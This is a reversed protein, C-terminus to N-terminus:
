KYLGTLYSMVIKKLHHLVESNLDLTMYGTLPLVLIELNRDM